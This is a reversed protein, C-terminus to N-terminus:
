SLLKIWDFIMQYDNETVLVFKNACLDQLMKQGLQSKDADLLSNRIVSRTEIPLTKSIIFPQIPAPGFKMSPLVSVNDMIFKCIDDNSNKIKEYVMIDIVCCDVKKNAILQLSNFHSKSEILDGFFDNMVGHVNSSSIQLIDKNDFLYKQVTGWGSFSDRGNFAFSKKFLSNMDKFEKSFEKQIVLYSYYIPMNNVIPNNLVPAALLEFKDM